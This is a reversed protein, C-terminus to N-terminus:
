RFQSSSHRQCAMSGSTCLPGQGSFYTLREQPLLTIHFVKLYRKEKQYIFSFVGNDPGVFYHDETVVLIPRRSSGVGPDVVVLHVTRPPFYRYSFGTSLAAEKINHPTIEHTIDVLEVLPNINIIVGKMQGVFPDKTGFDSTLTIVTRRELM